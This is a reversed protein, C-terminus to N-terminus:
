GGTFADADAIAKDIVTFSEDTWDTLTKQHKLYSVTRSVKDKRENDTLGFKSDAPTAIVSNITYVGDLCANHAQAIEDSTREKATKEEAM